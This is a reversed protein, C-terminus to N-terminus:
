LVAELAEVISKANELHGEVENLALTARKHGVRDGTHAIRNRRKYLERLQQESSGKLSGQHGDVKAGSDANGLWQSFRASRPPIRARRQKSIRTSSLGTVGDEEVNTRTTSGSCM